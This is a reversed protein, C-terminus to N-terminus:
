SIPTGALSGVRWGDDEEVVPIAVVENQANTYLVFARDGEVRLSRVDAAAAEKRLQPLVAQNTLAALIAACGTDGSVSKGQKEAADRARTALEELSERVESSVYSCAADWDGEARADLFGHVAAAADDREAEDAETGFEQVSNDGGPTRLPNSGGGSDDHQGPTFDASGSDGGESGESEAAPPGEEGSGGKEGGQGAQQQAQAATDAGGSGSDDDDGCAVLGLSLLLAVLLISLKSGASM